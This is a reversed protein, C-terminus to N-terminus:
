GFVIGNSEEPIPLVHLPVNLPPVFCDLLTLNAESTSPAGVDRYVTPCWPCNVIGAGQVTEVLSALVHRLIMKAFVTIVNWHGDLLFESM